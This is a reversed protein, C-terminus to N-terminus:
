IITPPTEWIDSFFDVAVSILLFAAAYKVWTDFRKPKNLGSNKIKRGDPETFAIAVPGLIILVAVAVLCLASGSVALVINCILLVLGITFSAIKWLKLSKNYKEMEDSDASVMGNEIRLKKGCCQCFCEETSEDISLVYDCYICNSVTKDLM